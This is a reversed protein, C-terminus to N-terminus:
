EVSCTCAPLAINLVQQSPHQGGGVAKSLVGERQLPLGHMERQILELWTENESARVELRTGTIPANPHTSLIFYSHLLPCPFFRIMKLNCTPPNPTRNTKEEMCGVSDLLNFVM